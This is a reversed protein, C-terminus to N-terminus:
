KNSIYPLVKPALWGWWTGSQEYLHKEEELLTQAQAQYTKAQEEGIRTKSKGAAIAKDIFQEAKRNIDVARAQLAEDTSKFAYADSLLSTQLVTLKAVESELEERKKPDNKYTNAKKNLDSIKKSLEVAREQLPKGLQPRLNLLTVLIEKETEAAERKVKPSYTLGTQALLDAAATPRSALEANLEDIRANIIGSDVFPQEPQAYMNKAAFYGGIGALLTWLGGRSSKQPVQQAQAKQAAETQRQAEAQAAREKLAEKARLFADKSYATAKPYVTKTVYNSFRALMAFSNTSISVLCLITLVLKKNM